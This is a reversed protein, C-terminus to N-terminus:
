PHTCVIGHPLSGITVNFYEDGEYLKDNLPSIFLYAATEGSAFFVDYAPAYRSTSVLWPM